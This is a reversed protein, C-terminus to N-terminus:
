RAKFFEDLQRAKKAKEWAEIFRKVLEVTGTHANASMGGGEGLWRAITFFNVGIKQAMAQYTFRRGGSKKIERLKATLESNIDM